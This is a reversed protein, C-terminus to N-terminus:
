VSSLDPLVLCPHASETLLTAKAAELDYEERSSAQLRIMRTRDDHFVMSEPIPDDPPRTLSTNITFWDLQKYLATSQNKFARDLGADVVRTDKTPYNWAVLSAFGDGVARAELIASLGAEGTGLLPMIWAKSRNLLTPTIPKKIRSVVLYDLFVSLRLVPYGSRINADQEISANGRLANIPITLRAITYAIVKTGRKETGELDIRIEPSIYPGHVYTFTTAFDITPDFNAALGDRYGHSTGDVALVCRVKQNEYISKHTSLGMSTLSSATAPLISNSAEM